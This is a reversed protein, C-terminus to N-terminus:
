STSADFFLSSTPATTCANKSCSLFVVSSFSFFMLFLFCLYSFNKGKEWHNQKKKKGIKKEGNERVENNKEHGQGGGGRRTENQKQKWECLLAVLVELVELVELM